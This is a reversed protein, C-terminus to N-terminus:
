DSIPESNAAIVAHLTAIRLDLSQLRDAVENRDRALHSLAQVANAYTAQRDLEPTWHVVVAAIIAAKVAASATPSAVTAGLSRLSRRRVDYDTEAHPTWTGDSHRELAVHVLYDRGRYVLAPLTDNGHATTMVVARGAGVFVIRVPGIVGNHDIDVNMEPNKVWSVPESTLPGLVVVGPDCRYVEVRLTGNDTNRFSILGGKHEDTTRGGNSFEIIRENGATHKNAIANTIVRPKPM